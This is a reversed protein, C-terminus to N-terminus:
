KVPFRTLRRRARKGARYARLWSRSLPSVGRIATHLLPRDRLAELRRVVAGAWEPDLGMAFAGMADM